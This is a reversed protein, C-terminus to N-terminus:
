RKENAYNKLNSWQRDFEFQLYKHLFIEPALRRRWLELAQRDRKAIEPKWEYWAGGFTDRFAMFLAYDDLWHRAVIALSGFNRK